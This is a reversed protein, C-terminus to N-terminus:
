WYGSVWSPWNTNFDNKLMLLHYLFCLIYTNFVCLVTTFTELVDELPLTQLYKSQTLKM